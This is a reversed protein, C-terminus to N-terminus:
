VSGPRASRWLESGNRAFRSDVETLLDKLKKFIVQKKINKPNFPIFDLRTVAGNTVDCLAMKLM